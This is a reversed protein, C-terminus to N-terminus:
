EARLVTIPDTCVVRWAPFLAAGFAVLTLILPVVLFTGPDVPSTDYLLASLARTVVFSALVGVLIGTGSLRLCHQFVLALLDRRNAGLAIRVGFEQTRQAANYALLGAIGLTALLLAAIAFCILLWTRFREASLSQELIQDVSEIKQVPLSPDIGNIEHRIANTLQLPDGSTRVVVYMQNVWDQWTTFMILRPSNSNLQAKVDAVVGIVTLWPEDNNPIAIGFRIHRAIPDDNPWVRKALSESIVATHPKGLQDEPRLLRGRLLSVGLSELANGRCFVTDVRETEDGRGEISIVVNSTSGTPLDSIAGTQRIGPFRDLRSLLRDFFGFIQAPTKYVAVPLTIQASIVHEPRFGPNAESAKALSRALLGAATLLLFALAFQIVVAASMLLRQQKGQTTTRGDGRLQNVLTSRFTTALPGLCFVLPTALSVAGVFAMMRWNLGIESLRPLNDPAFRVLLPLTWFALCFGLAGGTISLVLGETITQRALRGRAAGLATRLAFERQRGVMRSFMLNAVDACGILLVVGVAALLLLLPRQVNGTFEEHFPVTQSELSFNPMHSLAQKIKPPYDQAIRKLLGHVDARAQEISVNPKLRAVMSYDFNNINQQRDEKSWSVPVFVDAPDGNFRSGRIPFSFPRPLVGIVTYPTRDLLITRGLAREPAGFTSRAFGYTLVALRRSHEDEEQTFTRGRAPSVGLVQFLSATVRAGYVRRPEGAGSIEYPQTRYTGTAGFSRSNAAVFLYDPCSFPMVPFGLGPVGETVAVLRDQDPFSLPRFLVTDVVSFIATNVGICFALAAIVTVSFVPAKRLTRIAFRVDSSTNELWRVGRADRCEEKLRETGNLSVRALRRAEEPSAGAAIEREIERDLYDRLEDDLDSEARSRYFLAQFRLRCKRSWRM